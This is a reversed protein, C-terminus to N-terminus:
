PQPGDSFADGAADATDVDLSPKEVGQTPLDTPDGGVSPAAPNPPAGGYMSGSPDPADEPTKIADDASDPVGEDLNEPAPMDPNQTSPRLPDMPSPPSAYAHIHGEPVANRWSPGAKGLQVNSM